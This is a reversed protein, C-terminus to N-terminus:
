GEGRWLDAAAERRRILRAKGREVAAEAARPRANYNSSLVFGYAGAELLALRDGAEIPPLLRQHAFSDGSECLPGVVDARLKRGRRPRLPAIEHYAGYLSPRLLDNAGADTIVFTRGAHRKVYLVRTLLAGAAALLRRGPELILRREPGGRVGALGRRLARAYAAVSPARQGPRYAAGLGGGADFHRLRVGRDELEAALEAVRRAAATFPALDLIQSGIHFGIGDAELWRRSAG